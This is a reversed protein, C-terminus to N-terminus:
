SQDSTPRESLMPFVAITGFILCVVLLTLGVPWPTAALTIVRGAEEIPKDLTAEASAFVPTAYVALLATFAVALTAFPTYKLLRKM